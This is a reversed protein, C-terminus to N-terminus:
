QSSATQTSNPPERVSIVNALPVAGNATELTAQGNSFSIGTVQSVSDVTVPISNTNADIATIQITYQGDPLQSGDSATGNWVLQQAGAATQGAMTDVVQGQSNTITIATASAASPLTYDWEASGNQLTATNGQAEVMTGLFSVMSPSQSNTTASILTQLNSNTQITQEVESFQALQSTFDTASVPDLPDQNSLQTTLLQLFSDFNATNQATAVTPDSSIAATPSTSSSQTGTISNVTTM